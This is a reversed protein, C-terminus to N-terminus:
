QSQEENDLRSVGNMRNDLLSNDNLPPSGSERWREGQLVLLDCYHQMRKADAKIKERITTTTDMKKSRLQRQL